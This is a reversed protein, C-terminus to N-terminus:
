AIAATMGGDATVSTGTITGSVESALFAIIRAIEDPESIRGLPVGAMQEAEVDGAAKGSATALRDILTDWRGTRTPGPNVANVRVGAPALEEALGRIVALCAANAAAGPLMRKNPQKGANGVVAVMRGAGQDRMVPAAARLARVLGFFKLGLATEWVDDGLEWFLGGQAAGASVVLMDIRGFCEVAAKVAADADGPATLDAALLLTDPGGPADAGFSDISRAALALKAGEAALLRATALGIGKSAGFILATQGALKLDM